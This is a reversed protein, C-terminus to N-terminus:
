VRKTRLADTTTTARNEMIYEKVECAKQSNNEYYKLLVDELYKKSMPQKTTRQVRTLRLENTNLSDIENKKMVELLDASIQKQAALKSKVHARHERIENDLTIWQKVCSVLEEKTEM